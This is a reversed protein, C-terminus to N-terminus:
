LSHEAMGPGHASDEEGPLVTEGGPATPRERSEQETPAAEAKTEGGPAEARRMSEETSDSPLREVLSEAEESGESSMTSETETTEPQAESESEKAAKEPAPKEKPAGGGASAGGTGIHVPEANEMVGVGSVEAIHESIKQVTGSVKYDETGYLYQHLQVVNSALTAPIVCDMKRIKKTTRSFPFGQSDVIEYKKVNRALSVADDIGMSTSIEPFVYRAVEALTRANAQKAKEMALGLVKRQRATRNFDTDMLRLRGYAVAQVGDLHNMGAHALQVSGLGTSNVTETIFANIYKFESDSIELDVGGLATIGKAVAAWNFSVYDDIKLDFNSELAAVAQKHGGLFYAENLKHYKGESDVRSYTDRYVSTLKVSGDRRNISALMIVDSLAGAELNGDRSDVGFVAVTWYKAGLYPSAFSWIGFGLLLLLCLLLARRGFGGRRKGRGAARSSRGNQRMRARGQMEERTRRGAAQGGNGRAPNRTDRLAYEEEDYDPEHAAEMEERERRYSEMRRESPRTRRVPRSETRALRRSRNELSM